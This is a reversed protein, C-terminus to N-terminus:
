KYFTADGVVTAADCKRQARFLFLCSFELEKGKGLKCSLTLSGPNSNIYLCFMVSSEFLFLAIDCLTSVSVVGLVKNNQWM